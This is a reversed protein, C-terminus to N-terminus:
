MLMESPMSVVLIVKIEWYDKKHSKFTNVKEKISSFFKTKEKIKEVDSTNKIFYLDQISIKENQNCSIIAAQSAAKASDEFQM